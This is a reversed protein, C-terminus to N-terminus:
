GFRYQGHITRSLATTNEQLRYVTFGLLSSSVGAVLYITLNVFGVAIGILNSLPGFSSAACIMAFPLISRQASSGFLARGMKLMLLALGQSLAIYSVLFPVVAVTGYQIASSVFPNLEVSQSNSALNILTTYLDLAVFTIPFVFVFGNRITTLRLFEEIDIGVIWLGAAVSVVGVVMVLAQGFSQSEFLGPLLVTFSSILQSSLIWYIGSGILLLSVGPPIRM